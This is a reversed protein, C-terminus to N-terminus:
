LLRALTAARSSVIRSWRGAAAGIAVVGCALGGFLIAGPEPVSHITINDFGMPEEGSPTGAWSLRIDLTTGTEGALLASVYTDFAGTTPNSKDLVSFATASGDIFVELPDDLTFTDGDDFARYTKAIAENTRALFITQFPDADVRAEIMFGDTSSAEFNGFAAIDITVAVLAVASSIDFTWVANNVGVADADNMAFFASSNSGAVAITDTAFVGGGSTDVVSDDWVDFPGGTGSGGNFQSVRGFVDGGSGGGAGYNSVNTTSNLNVAGGDFDEFGVIVAGCHSSDFAVSLVTSVCICIVYRVAVEKANVLTTRHFRRSNKDAL